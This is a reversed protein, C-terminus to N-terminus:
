GRQRVIGGGEAADRQPTYLDEANGGVDCLDGMRAVLLATFVTTNWARFGSAHKRLRQSLSVAGDGGCKVHGWAHINSTVFLVGRPCWVGRPKRLSLFSGRTPVTGRTSRRSSLRCGEPVLGEHTM